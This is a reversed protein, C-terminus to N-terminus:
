LPLPAGHRNEMKVAYGLVVLCVVLAAAGASWARWHEALHRRVLAAGRADRWASLKHTALQLGAEIRCRWQNTEQLSKAPVRPGLLRSRMLEALRLRDRASLSDKPM